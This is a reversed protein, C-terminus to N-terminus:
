NTEEDSEGERRELHWRRTAIRTDRIYQLIATRNKKDRFVQSLPPSGKLCAPRSASYLPCFLLLHDATERTGCRCLESDAQGIRKLYTKIYGHGLKLMYYASSIARECTVQIGYNPHWQHKQFYNGSRHRSKTKAKIFEQEWEQNTQEKLCRKAEKKSLGSYQKQRRKIGQLQTREKPKLIEVGDSLPQSEQPLSTSGMAEQIPHNQPLDRARLGYIISLRELRVAPPLLGAELAAPLAPATRFVGLIRRAAKGQIADLRVISRSPKWWVPSGYDLASVVCARYIQRLSNATLGNETNALREMRNFTALAKTARIQIHEKFNLWPDFWIGLWRVAKQTPIIREGTPLTITAMKSEASKSFHLLETKALDFQIAQSNGTRTLKTVERQLIKANKGFSTSTTALAIDDIYSLPYVDELNQFLDRIYILFLIPSIPSGQPVGTEVASFGEIQGDFALRILRDELFSRTWNIISQPLGLSDMTQLLREKAVHDFAGKVDLFVVSSKQHNAKNREVFDTLLMATDVASKKKRGGMQSNHLLPGNEAMTSLRKALIRESVKGLCNLLSIIRYAKSISYDPKGPKPLIAGTAQRWCKPHYGKAILLGYVKLFTDPIAQFAKAIIEQTIGDPGPTKGKVATSSCAQALEEMSVPDWQWNFHRQRQWQPRNVQINNSPPKPFLTERLVKCKGEFTDSGQISPILGQSSPKTYAMAKFISKPDTNELFRNWHDKKAGKIAQFYTNRAMRYARKLDELGSDPATHLEKYARALGRRLDRLDPTWWPKSRLSKQSRPISTKAANGIINAFHTALEELNSLDPLNNAMQKLSHSFLGWDAKKTNYGQTDLPTSLKSATASITIGIALHDSGIDITHWNLEQQSLQGKTLTLDIVSPADMHPRYFTGVNPVNRLLLHKEEIWTYLNDEQASNRSSTPDWSQHRTNFDGAVLTNPLLPLSYLCRDVTWRGEQDKENYLNVIQIRSGNSDRVELSQCDSDLLRTPNIQLQLLRSTYVLTRPRINNGHPPLLATFSPHNISRCDRYGTEKDRFIWPEQILILDVKQQVAYELVSETAQIGRNTNAQIIRLTTDLM